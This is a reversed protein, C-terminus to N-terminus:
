QPAKDVELSRVVMLTCLSYSKDAYFRKIVKM